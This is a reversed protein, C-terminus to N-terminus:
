LLSSFTSVEKIIKLTLDVGFGYLYKASNLLAEGCILNEGPSNELEPSRLMSIVILRARALLFGIGQLTVPKSAGSYAMQM